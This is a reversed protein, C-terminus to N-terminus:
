IRYPVPSGLSSSSGERRRRGVRKRGGGRGGGGGGGNRGKGGKSGADAVASGRKWRRLAARDATLNFFLVALSFISNFPSARDGRKNTTRTSSHGRRRWTRRGNLLMKARFSSQGPAWEAARIPRRRHQIARFHFGTLFFFTWVLLAPNCADKKGERRGAQLLM